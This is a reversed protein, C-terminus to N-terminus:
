NESVCIEALVVTLNDKAGTLYAQRILENKKDNLSISKGLIEQIKEDSIMGWLGDSCLLIIDTSQLPFKKTIEPEILFEEEDIGLNQTLINKMNCSAMMEQKKSGKQYIELSNARTHDVTMLSLMNNHYLYGRSDGINGMQAMNNQFKCLVATTGMNCKRQKNQLCVESNMLFFVEELSVDKQKEQCEIQYNGLMKACLFAAYEGYDGGGMGDFVAIIDNEGKLISGGYMYDSQDMNSKFVRNCYFNDQNLKRTNGMETKAEVM